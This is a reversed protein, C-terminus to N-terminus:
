ACAAGATRDQRLKSEAILWHEVDRGVPRGEQEWM